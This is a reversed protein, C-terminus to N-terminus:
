SHCGVNANKIQTLKAGYFHEQHKKRFPSLFVAISFFYGGFPQGGETGSSRGVRNIKKGEFAAFSYKWARGQTCERNSFLLRTYPFVSFLLESPPFIVLACANCCCGSFFQSFFLESWNLDSLQKHCQTYNTRYNKPSTRWCMFNIRVGQLIITATFQCSVPYRGLSHTWGFLLSGWFGGFKPLSSEDHLRRGDQGDSGQRGESGANLTCGLIKKGVKPVNCEGLWIQWWIIGVTPLCNNKNFVVNPCRTKRSMIMALFTNLPNFCHINGNCFRYQIARSRPM